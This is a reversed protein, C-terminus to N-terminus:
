VPYVPFDSPPYRHCELKVAVKFCLCITVRSDLETRWSLSGRRAPGQRTAGPAKKAAVPCLPGSRSSSPFKSSSKCSVVCGQVLPSARQFRPTRAHARAGRSPTQLGQKSRLSPAGPRPLRQAPARLARRPQAQPALTQLAQPRLALGTRAARRGGGYLAAIQTKNELGTDRNNRTGSKSTDCRELASSCTDQPRRM